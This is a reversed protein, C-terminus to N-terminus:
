FEFLFNNRLNKRLVISHYIAYMIKNMCESNEGTLIPGTMAVARWRKTEAYKGKGTIGDMMQFRKKGLGKRGNVLGIEDVLLCRRRM